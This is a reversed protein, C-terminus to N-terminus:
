IPSHILLPARTRQEAEEAIMGCFRKPPMNDQPLMNAHPMKIPAATVIAVGYIGFDLPGRVIGRGVTRRLERTERRASAQVYDEM